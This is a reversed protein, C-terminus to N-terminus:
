NKSINKAIILTEQDVKGNILEQRFRMQFIKTALFKEKSNNFKFSYGIKKISNFFQLEENNSM